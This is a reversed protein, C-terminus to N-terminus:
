DEESVGRHWRFGRRRWTLSPWAVEDCRGSLRPKRIPGILRRRDLSQTSPVSETVDARATRMQELAYRNAEETNAAVCDGPIFLRYDRMYADNATFLVCINTAFGALVVTRVGLYKLLIDLTTAFFGSHKPKLVFYDELGPQLLEVVAKGPVGDQLRHM